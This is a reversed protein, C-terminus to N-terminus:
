WCIVYVLKVRIWCNVLIENGLGLDFGGGFVSDKEEDSGFGFVIGVSGVGVFEVIVNEIIYCIINCLCVSSYIEVGVYFCYFDGFMFYSGGVLFSGVGLGGEYVDVVVFVDFIDVFIDVSNCNVLYGVLIRM